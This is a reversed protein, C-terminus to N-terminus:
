LEKKKCNDFHWGKMALNGGVKGCHPCTLKPRALAIASQKARTETTHNKNYMPNKDGSVDAHNLSIKARVEESAKMGSNHHNEGSEYTRNASIKVLAEPTHKQNWMPNNEGSVDAHNEKMKAKTKESFERTIGSTGEGGDTMNCLKIGLSKLEEIRQIEIEFALPESIDEVIKRVSFGGAKAVIYQWHRNRQVTKYCRDSKGKGVYFIKNTDNRLHEYVYFEESM